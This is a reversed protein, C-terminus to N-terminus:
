SNQNGKIKIYDEIQYRENDSLLEPDYEGRAIMDILYDIYKTNYLYTNSSTKAIEIWNQGDYKYVKNPLVDVRTFVDGKDSYDPFRPGFGSTIQKGSDVAIKLFEPHMSFLAERQMHKGEYAVYGGPLEKFPLDQKVQMTHDQDATPEVEPEKPAVMPKTDFHVFPENLYPHLEAISKEPETFRWVVGETNDMVDCNKNPCFPGIGPANELPTGCM